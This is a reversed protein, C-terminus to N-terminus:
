LMYLDNKKPYITDNYLFIPWVYKQVFYYLPKTKKQGYLRSFLFLLLLLAVINNPELITNHM